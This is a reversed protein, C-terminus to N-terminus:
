AYKESIYGLIIAYFPIGALSNRMQVVCEADANQVWM